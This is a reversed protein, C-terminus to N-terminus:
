KAGLAEFPNKKEVMFFTQRNWAWYNKQRNM